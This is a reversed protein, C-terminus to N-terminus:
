ATPRHCDTLSVTTHPGVGPDHAQGNKSGEDESGAQATAPLPIRERVSSVGARLTRLSQRAEEIGWIQLPISNVFGVRAREVWIGVGSKAAGGRRVQKRV